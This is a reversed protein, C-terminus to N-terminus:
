NKCRFISWLESRSIWSGINISLTWQPISMYQIECLSNNILKFYNKGRSAFVLIEENNILLDRINNELEHESIFKETPYHFNYFHMDLAAVGYPKLDGVVYVEKFPNNYAWKYFPISTQVPRLIAQGLLILNVTFVLKLSFKSLKSQKFKFEDLLLILMVPFYILIPFLFRLEKHAVYSHVFFFSLTLWTLEHKWKRMWFILGAIILPLSIPFVGKEFTSKFYGWWPSVGWKNALKLVINQHYYWYPALTWKGYGWYDVGIGLLIAFVVGLSLVFLSRITLKHFILAWLFCFLIMFGIHYRMQFSLGMILGIILSHHVKLDTKQYSNDIIKYLM